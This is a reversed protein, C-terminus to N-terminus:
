GIRRKGRVFDVIFVKAIRKMRAWVRRELAPSNDYVRNVRDLAEGVKPWRGQLPLRIGDPKTHVSRVIWTNL